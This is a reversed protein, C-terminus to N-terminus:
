IWCMKEILAILVSLIDMRHQSAQNFIFYLTDWSILLSCVFPNEILLLDPFLMFKM